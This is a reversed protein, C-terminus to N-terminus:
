VILKQIGKPVLLYEQSSNILVCLKHSVENTVQSRTTSSTRCGKAKDVWKIEGTGPLNDVRGGEYIKM